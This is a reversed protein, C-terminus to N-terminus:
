TFCTASAPLAWSTPRVGPASNVSHCPLLLPLVKQSTIHVIKETSKRHNKTEKQVKLRAFFLDEEPLTKGIKPTKEYGKIVAQWLGLHGISQIGNAVWMEPLLRFTVLRACNQIRSNALTKVKEYINLSKLDTKGINKVTWRLIYIELLFRQFLQLQVLIAGAGM